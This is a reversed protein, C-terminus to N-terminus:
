KLQPNLEALEKDICKIENLVEELKNKINVNDVNKFNEYERTKKKILVELSIFDEEVNKINDILISLELQIKSLNNRVEKDEERLGIM